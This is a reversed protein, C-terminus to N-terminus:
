ENIEKGLEEVIAKERDSLTWVTASKRAAREAAAKHLEDRITGLTEAPLLENAAAYQLLHLTYDKRSLPLEQANQKQLMMTEPMNNLRGEPMQMWHM